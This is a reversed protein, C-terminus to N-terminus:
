AENIWRDEILEITENRKTQNRKTQNRKTQNREENKLEVM